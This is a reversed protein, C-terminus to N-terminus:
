LGDLCVRGRTCPKTIVVFVFSALGVWHLLTKLAADVCGIQRVIQIKIQALYQGKIFSFIQALYKGLYKQKM